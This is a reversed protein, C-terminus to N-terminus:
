VHGQEGVQLNRLRVGPIRGRTRTAEGAAAGGQQGRGDRGGQNHQVYM